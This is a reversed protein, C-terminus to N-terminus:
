CRACLRTTKRVGGRSPEVTSWATESESPAGTGAEHKEIWYYLRAAEKLKVDVVFWGAAHALAGAIICAETGAISLSLVGCQCYRQRLAAELIACIFHELDVLELHEM